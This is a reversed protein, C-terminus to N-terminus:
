GTNSDSQSGTSNVTFTATPATLAAALSSEGGRKLIVLDSLADMNLRMPLVAVPEGEVALAVPARPEAAAQPEDGRLMGGTLIQLQHQDRDVVVLDDYGSVSVR